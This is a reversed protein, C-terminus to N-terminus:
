IERFLDLILSLTELSNCYTVATSAERLASFNANNLNTKMVGLVYDCKTVSHSHDSDVLQKLIKIKMMKVEDQRSWKIKSENEKMKENDRIGYFKYIFVEYTKSTESAKKKEYYFLSTHDNFFNNELAYIKLSNNNQKTEMKFKGVRVFEDKPVQEWNDDIEKTTVLEEKNLLHLFTKRGMM